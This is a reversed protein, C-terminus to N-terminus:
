RSSRPKGSAPKAPAANPRAPAARGPAAKAAAPKAAPKAPASRAPAPKISVSKIAAPKIAAPRASGMRAMSAMPMLEIRATPMNILKPDTSRAIGTSDTFNICYVVDVEAATDVLTDSDTVVCSSGSTTQTVSVGTPLPSPSTVVLATVARVGDGAQFTVTDTEGRFITEDGTGGNPDTITAKGTAADYAVTLTWSRNGM